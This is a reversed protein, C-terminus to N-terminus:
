CGRTCAHRALDLFSSRIRTLFQSRVSVPRSREAKRTGDLRRNRRGVGYKRLTGVPRVASLSEARAGRDGDCCGRRHARRTRCIDPRCGDDDRYDASDVAQRDCDIRRRNRCGVRRRVGPAVARSHNRRGHGARHHRVRATQCRGGADLRLIPDIKGAHSGLGGFGPGRWPKGAVVHGCLVFVLNRRRGACNRMVHLRLVGPRHSM